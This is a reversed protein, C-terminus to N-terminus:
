RVNVTVCRLPLLRKEECTATTDSTPSCTGCVASEGNDTSNRKPGVPLLRGAPRRARSSSSYLNTPLSIYPSLGYSQTVARM